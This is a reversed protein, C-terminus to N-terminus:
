LHWNYVSTFSLLSIFYLYIDSSLFTFKPYVESFRWESTFSLMSILLNLTFINCIDTFVLTLKLRSSYESTFLLQSTFCLYIHSLDCIDIIKYPLQSTFLYIPHLIHTFDCMDSLYIVTTLYFLSLYSYFWLHWNNETTFM